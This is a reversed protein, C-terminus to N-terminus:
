SFIWIRADTARRAFRRARFMPVLHWRKKGTARRLGRVHPQLALYEKSSLITLDSSNM